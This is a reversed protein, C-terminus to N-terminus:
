RSGWCKTSKMSSCTGRSKLRDNAQAQRALLYFKNQEADKMYASHGEDFVRAYPSYKSPDWGEDAM